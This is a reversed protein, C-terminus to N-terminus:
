VAGLREPAHAPRESEESMGRCCAQATNLSRYLRGAAKLSLYRGDFSSWLGPGLQAGAIFIGDSLVRGASPFLATEVVCGRQGIVASPQQALAATSYAETAELNLFIAGSRLDKLHESETLRMARLAPNQHLRKRAHVLSRSPDAPPDQGCVVHVAMGVREYTTIFRRANPPSLLRSCGRM